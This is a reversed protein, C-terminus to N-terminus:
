PDIARNGMSSCVFILSSRITVGKGNQQLEVLFFLFFLFFGGCM